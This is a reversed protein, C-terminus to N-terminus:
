TNSISALYGLRYFNLIFISPTKGLLNKKLYPKLFKFFSSTANLLKWSKLKLYANVLDHNEVTFIQNKILKNYVVEAAKEKKRLYTENDELGLHYVPNEIHVVSAKREKLYLSFIPDYGYFNGKLQRNIDIFLKKKILLNASIIVKYPNTKREKAVTMEKQRGYKWRLSVEPSPLKESYYFGGFCVDFFATKIQSIYNSIFEKSVPIVDADLFLVTSYIAKQALRQRTETRGINTENKLWIVNELSQFGINEQSIKSCDDLCIIEFEINLDKSQKHIEQVLSNIQYNYTPILISIM